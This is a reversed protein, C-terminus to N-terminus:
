AFCKGSWAMNKIRLLAKASWREIIAANIAKWDVDEIKAGYTKLALAYSQAIQKQTCGQKIENLIVGACGVMYIEFSTAEGM